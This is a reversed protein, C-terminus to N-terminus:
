SRVDPLPVGSASSATAVAAPPTATSAAEASSQARGLVEELDQVRAAGALVIVSGVRRRRAGRSDARPGRVLVDDAYAAHEGDPHRYVEVRVEAAGRALAADALQRVQAPDVSWTYASTGGAWPKGGVVRYGDLYLCHPRGQWLVMDLELRKPKRATM